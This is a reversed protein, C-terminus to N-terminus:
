DNISTPQIVSDYKFYLDAFDDFDGKLIKEVILILYYDNSKENISFLARKAKLIQSVERQFSESIRSNFPDNVIDHGISSWVAETNFDFHFSESIRQKKKADYVLIHCFMPEVDSSKMNLEKCEVTLEMRRYNM